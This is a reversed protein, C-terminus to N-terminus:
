CTACRCQASALSEERHIVRLVQLVHIFRSLDYGAASASGRRPLVAKESLRKVQLAPPAAVLEGNRHTGNEKEIVVKQVKAPPEPVEAEAM